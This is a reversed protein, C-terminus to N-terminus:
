QRWGRKGGEVVVFHNFNWFVIVPPEVSRLAEAPMMFGKAELGYFEAAAVINIRPLARM